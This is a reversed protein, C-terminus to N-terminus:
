SLHSFTVARKFIQVPQADGIPPDGSDQLRRREMEKIFPHVHAECHDLRTRVDRLNRQTHDELEIVRRLEAEVVRTKKQFTERDTKLWSIESQLESNDEKLERM